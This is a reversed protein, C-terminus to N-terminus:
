SYRGAGRTQNNTLPNVSSYRGGGGSTRDGSFSNNEDLRGGGTQNGTFTPANGGLQPTEFIGEERNETQTETQGFSGFKFYLWLAFAAIVYIMTKTM